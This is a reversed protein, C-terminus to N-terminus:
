LSNMFAKSTARGRGVGIGRCCSCNSIGMRCPTMKNAASSKCSAQLTKDVVKEKIFRIAQQADDDLWIGLAQQVEVNNLHIIVETNDYM